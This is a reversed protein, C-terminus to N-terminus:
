LFLIIVASFYNQQLICDGIYWTEKVIILPTQQVHKWHSNHWIQSASML